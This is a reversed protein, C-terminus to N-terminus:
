SPSPLSPPSLVAAEAGAEARLLPPLGRRQDRRGVDEAEAESSPAWCLDTEEETRAARRVGSALRLDREGSEAGGVEIEMM